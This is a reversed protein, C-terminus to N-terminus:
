EKQAPGGDLSFWPPAPVFVPARSTVRGDVVSPAYPAPVTALAPDPRKELLSRLSRERFEDSPDETARGLLRASDLGADLRWYPAASAFAAEPAEPAFCACRERVAAYYTWYRPEKRSSAWFALQKLVYQACVVRVTGGPVPLSSFPVLAGASNEVRVVAGRSEVLVSPPCVDMVARYEAAASTRRDAASAASFGDAIADAHAAWESAPERHWAPVLYEPGSPTLRFSSERLPAPWPPEPFAAVLAAVAALGGLLAMPGVLASPVHARVFDDGSAPEVADAIPADAAGDVDGDAAGDVGGDAAGDVGGDAAGDVGGDAAGDVGGDAAGDVGGDAAGDVGGDWQMAHLADAGGDAGGDAAGDIAGGFAADKTAALAASVPYYEYLLRHRSVDKGWRYFVNEHPFRGFPASLALHQDAYQWHPHVSRIGDRVLVPLYAYVAAPLFSLDAVTDASLADCRIRVTQLHLARFVRFRHPAFRSALIDALDYADSAHRPSYFDWDPLADDGYLGPAGALRLASDIAQGGYVVLDRERIFDAVAAGVAVLTERARERSRWEAAAAEAGRRVSEFSDM